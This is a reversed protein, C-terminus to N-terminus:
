LRRVIVSAALVFIAYLALASLQLVTPSPMVSWWLVFASGTALLVFMSQLAVIARKSLAGLGLMLAQMGATELVQETKSPPKAEVEDSIIQFPKGM